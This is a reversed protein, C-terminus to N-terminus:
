INKLNLDFFEKHLDILHNDEIIIEMINNPLNALKHRNLYNTKEKELTQGIFSSCNGTRPVYSTIDINEPMNLKLSIDKRYDKSLLWKNYIIVNVSSDKKNLFSIHSKWKQILSPIDKIFNSHMDEIEDQTYIKHILQTSRLHPYKIINELLRKRSSILNILDRVIVINEGPINLNIFQDEFNRILIPNQPTFGCSTLVQRWQDNSTQDNVYFLTEKDESRHHYSFYHNLNNSLPVLNLNYKFLYWFIIAHQGSRRLSYFNIIKKPNM